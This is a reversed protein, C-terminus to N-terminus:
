SYSIKFANKVVFKIINGAKFFFCNSNAGVSRKTLFKIKLLKYKFRKKVYDTNKATNLGLVLTNKVRLRAKMNFVM